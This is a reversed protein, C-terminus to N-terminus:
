RHTLKEDDVEIVGEVTEPQKGNLALLRRALPNVRELGTSGSIETPAERLLQRKDFTIAAVVALDRAGVPPCRHRNIGISLPARCRGILGSVLLLACFARHVIKPDFRALGESDPPKEVGDVASTPRLTAACQRCV